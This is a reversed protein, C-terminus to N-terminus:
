FKSIIDDLFLRDNENFYNIFSTKFVTLNTKIKKKEQDTFNQNKEIRKSVNKLNNFYNNAILDLNKDITSM